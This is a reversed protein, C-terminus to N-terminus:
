WVDGHLLECLADDVYHSHLSNEKALHVFSELDKKCVDAKAYHQVSTAQLAHHIKNEMLM